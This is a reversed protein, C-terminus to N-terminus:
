VRSSKRKKSKRQSEIVDRVLKCITETKEDTSRMLAAMAGDKEEEESEQGPNNSLFIGDRKSQTGTGTLFFTRRRDDM